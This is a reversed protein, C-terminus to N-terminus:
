NNQSQLSLNTHINYPVNQKSKLLREHDKGKQKTWKAEKASILVCFPEFLHKNINVCVCLICMKRKNQARFFISQVLTNLLDTVISHKSSNHREWQKEHPRNETALSYTWHQGPCNPHHHCPRNRLRLFLVVSKRNLEPGFENQKYDCSMQKKKIIVKLM